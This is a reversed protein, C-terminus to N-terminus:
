QKLLGPAGTRELQRLGDLAIHDVAGEPRPQATVAQSELKDVRRLWRGLAAALEQPNLPKTIHDDMGASLSKARAGKSVDATLGTIPTNPGSEERRGTEGTGRYGDM